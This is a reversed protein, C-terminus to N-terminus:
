SQVFDSVRCKAHRNAPSAETKFSQQQQLAIKLVPASVHGLYADMMEACILVVISDFGARFRSTIRRIWIPFSSDHATCKKADL